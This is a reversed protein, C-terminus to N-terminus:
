ALLKDLDAITQRAPDIGGCEAVFKKALLLSDVLAGGSKRRRKKRAKGNAASQPAAARIQHLVNSVTAPTVKHAALAAAIEKPRQGPNAALYDRVIQSKNVPEAKKAM